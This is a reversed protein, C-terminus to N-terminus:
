QVILTLIREAEQLVPADAPGSRIKIFIAGASMTSDVMICRGAGIPRLFEVGSADWLDCYSNPTDDPSVLFGINAPTWDAPCLVTMLTNATLNAANSVSQGAPITIKIVTKPM